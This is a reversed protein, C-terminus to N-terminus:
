ALQTTCQEILSAYHAGSAESMYSREVYVPIAEAIVKCLTAAEARRTADGREILSQCYLCAMHLAAQQHTGRDEWVGDLSSLFPILKPFAPNKSSDTEVGFSVRLLMEASTNFTTRDRLIFM